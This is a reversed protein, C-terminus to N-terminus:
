GVSWQMCMELGGCDVCCCCFGVEWKARERSEKLVMPGGKEM